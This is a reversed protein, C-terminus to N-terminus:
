NGYPNRGTKGTKVPYDLSIVSPRNPTSNSLKKQYFKEVVEFNWDYFFRGTNLEEEIRENDPEIKLAKELLFKANGWAIQEDYFGWVSGGMHWVNAMDIYPEM